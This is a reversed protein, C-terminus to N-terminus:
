DGEVRGLAARVERAARAVLAHDSPSGARSVVGAVLREGECLAPFFVTCEGPADAVSVPIGQRRCRKAVMRNVEREDTAAVVLASGAEDGPAYPRRLAEAAADLAAVSPEPDVVAVRAGFRALALARRTGVAGAGVVLCRAGALSVFLPFRACAPDTAPADRAAEVAARPADGGRRAATRCTAAAEAGEGAAAVAYGGPLDRAADGVPPAAAAGGDPLAGDLARLMHRVALAGLEPLQGLGELCPRVAFGADELRSRWSRADTGAVDRRAHGAAAMMLPVLRVARPRLPGRELQAVAGEVPLGGRLTGVVADDRGLEALAHALALYALQGAGDAGHGVFVVAEGDARPYRRDLAAALARVDAADGLLPGTLAVRDFLTRKGTVADRVARYARGDVLLTAAVMVERAGAARLRELAGRVDPVDIGRGALARRARESAYAEAVPGAPGGAERVRDRWADGLRRALPEVCGLRADDRSAGYSVVLLGRRHGDGRAEGMEKRGRAPRAGNVRM